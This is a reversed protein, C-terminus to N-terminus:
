AIHVPPRFHPESYGYTYHDSFYDIHKLSTNMDQVGIFDLQYENLCFKKIVEELINNQKESKDLNMFLEKEEKDNICYYMKTSGSDTIKVVDFKEDGLFFERDDEWEAYKLQEKTFVVLTTESKRNKYEKEVLLKIYVKHNKIKAIIYIAM